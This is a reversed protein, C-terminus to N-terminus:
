PILKDWYGLVQCLAGLGLGFLIGVMLMLVRAGVDSRGTSVQFTFQGSATSPDTPGLDPMPITATTRIPAHSGSVSVSAEGKDEEEVDSPEETGM